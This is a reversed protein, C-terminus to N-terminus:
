FRFWSGETTRVRFGPNCANVRMNPCLHYYYIMIMNLAAKSSAYAPWSTMFPAKKCGGVSGLGTSMFIIRPNAAKELLPKFVDATQATGAVNTHMAKM